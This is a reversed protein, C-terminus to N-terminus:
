AYDHPGSALAVTEAVAAHPPTELFLLQAAGLRLLNHIRIAKPRARMFRDLLSDIQGLRRLVTTVLLRAFARDRPDLLPLAPHGAFTEDLPRREGLVRDLVDLAVARASVPRAM